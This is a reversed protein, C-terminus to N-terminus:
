RYKPPIRCFDVGVPVSSRRSAASESKPKLAASFAFALFRLFCGFKIVLCTGLKGLKLVTVLIIELKPVFKDVYAKLFVLLCIFLETDAKVAIGSFAKVGILHWFDYM